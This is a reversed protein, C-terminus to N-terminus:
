IMADLSSKNKSDTSKPASSVIDDPAAELPDKIAKISLELKGKKSMICKTHHVSGISIISEINNVYKNSLQSIHVFELSGDSM